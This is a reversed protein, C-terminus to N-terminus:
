GTQDWLTRRFRLYEADDHDVPLEREYAILLDRWTTWHWDRNRQLSRETRATLQPAVVVLFRREEAIKRLHNRYAPM